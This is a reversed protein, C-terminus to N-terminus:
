RSDRLTDNFIESRTTLYRQAHRLIDRLIDNFIKSSFAFTHSNECIALYENM